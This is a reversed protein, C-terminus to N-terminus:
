KPFVGESRGYEYTTKEPVDVVEEVSSEVKVTSYDVNEFILTMDKTVWFNSPYKEMMEKLTLKDPHTNGNAIKFTDDSKIKNDVFDRMHGFAGNVSWGLADTVTEGERHILQRFKNKDDSYGNPIINEGSTTTM